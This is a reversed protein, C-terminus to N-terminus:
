GFRKCIGQLVALTISWQPPTESCLKAIKRAVVKTLLQQNPAKRLVTKVASAGKRISAAVRGLSPHSLKLGQPSTRIVSAAFVLQQVDSHVKGLARTLEPYSKAIVRHGRAAKDELLSLMEKLDSGTLPKYNPDRKQAPTPLLSQRLSRCQVALSHTWVPRLLSTVALLRITPSGDVEVSCLLGKDKLDYVYAHCYHPDERARKSINEILWDEFFLPCKYCMRGFTAVTDQAVKSEDSGRIIPEQQDNPQQDHQGSPTASAEGPPQYVLQDDNLEEDDFKMKKGQAEFVITPGKRKKGSSPSRQDDPAAILHHQGPPADATPVDDPTTTPSSVTPDPIVKCEDPSIDDEPVHESILALEETGLRANCLDQLVSKLAKGLIQDPTLFQEFM